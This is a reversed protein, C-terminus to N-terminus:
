FTAMFLAVNVFTLMSMVVYVRAANSEVEETTTTMDGEEITTTTTLTTATTTAMSTMETDATEAPWTTLAADGKVCMDADDIHDSDCYVRIASNNGVFTQADGCPLVFDLCEYCNHEATYWLACRGNVGDAVCEEANLFYCDITSNSSDFLNGEYCCDLPFSAHCYFDTWAHALPSEDGFEAFVEECTTGNTSWLSNIFEVSWCTGCAFGSPSFMCSEHATCTEADLTSCCGGVPDTYAKVGDARTCPILDWTLNLALSDNLSCHDNDSLVSLLAQTLLYAISVIRSFSTM